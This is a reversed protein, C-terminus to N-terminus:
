EDETFPTDPWYLVLGRGMSDITPPRLEKDRCEGKIHDLEEKDCNFSVCEAGYMFRGSYSRVDRGVSAALEVVDDFKPNKM